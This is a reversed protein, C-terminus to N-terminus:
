VSPEVVPCAALKELTIQRPDSPRKAVLASVDRVIGPSPNRLQFRYYYAARMEPLSRKVETAREIATVLRVEVVEAMWDFTCGAQYAVFRDSKFPDFDLSTPKGAVGSGDASRVTSKDWEVAHCFFTLTSRCDEAAQQDRVYGLLVQTDKPPKGSVSVASAARYPAPEEQLTDHTFYNIRYSQTFGSSHHRLLDRVFDALPAIGSPDKGEVPSPKVAFAGVGPVVEQYREFRNGGKEKSNMPADGPFLVYSGATRRIAENYTHMKYLDANKFTSTTKAAREDAAEQASPNEDDGEPEEAGLLETIQEIRYKADFHIYAIRGEAEAAEEAKLWNDATYDAPLIVLTFDPRFGRSYAGSKHLGARGGFRRNYFLHVRLMEGEPGKWTFRTFSTRGQKLNIALGGAASECCFPLWDGAGPPPQTNEAPEMKLPGRLMKCLTFYLWFEYLTAVDRNTGDYADKRGPWDIQAAADLMLWAQLVERYGERKQLTQNELPIRRLEGVADFFPEALLNELVTEMQGAELWASGQSASIEPIARVDACLGAFRGLAFKVFRNPPTDVTDFKREAIVEGPSFGNVIGTASRQWDRGHRLPDRIFLRPDAAAAPVWHRETALRSHPHRQLMELFLDLRDPGLVHRLFLFQELLTRAQHEPDATISLSTPADWTLLLQQCEAAIAEVMAKYEAEYSLKRTVVEFRIKTEGCALWATGLYNVFKFTGRWEGNNRGKIARWDTDRISGKLSCSPEGEGGTLEWEYSKLEDVWLTQVGRAPGEADYSMAGQTDKDTELGRWGAPLDACVTLETASRTEGPARLIFVGSSPPDLPIELLGYARAAM